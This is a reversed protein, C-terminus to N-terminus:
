TFVAKASGCYIRVINIRTSNFFTANCLNSHSLNAETHRDALGGRRVPELRAGPRPIADEREDLALGPQQALVQRLPNLMAPSMCRWQLAM